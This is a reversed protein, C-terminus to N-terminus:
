DTCRWWAGLDTRTSFTGQPSHRDPLDSSGGTLDLSPCDGVARLACTVHEPFDMLEQPSVGALAPYDILLGARSTCFYIAEWRAGDPSEARTRRQIIWHLPDPCLIIRHDGDKRLTLKYADRSELDTM